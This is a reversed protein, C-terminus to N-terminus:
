VTGNSRIAYGVDPGGSVAIADVLGAPVNTTMSPPSGSPRSTEGWAIVTSAVATSSFLTVVLLFLPLPCGSQRENTRLHFTIANSHRRWIERVVSTIPNM